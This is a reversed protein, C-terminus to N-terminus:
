AGAAVRAPCQAYSHLGGCGPGCCKHIGRNCEAGVVANACNGLNFGYCVRKNDIMPSCGALAAPMKGKGKGKGKNGDFPVPPFSWAVAKAKAKAVAATRKARKGQGPIGPVGPNPPGESPRKAVASSASSGQLPLLLFTVKADTMLAKMAQEVIRNGAADIGVGERCEESLLIFLERDAALIQELSVHLYKPPPVRAMASYLSNVWREHTDFGILNAQDLALSRRLFAQRIKYDSSLDASPGVEREVLRIAGNVDKGVGTDIKIGQLEHVRSTCKDLTIHRIMADEVMQQALDLLAHSPENDQTIQISVLRRVQDKHRAAREPAPMKRPASEDTREVRAKTDSLVLTHSEFQLRRFRAMSATGPEVGLIDILATKLAAGDNIAVSHPVLFAFAAFTDLSQATLASLEAQSVGVALARARFAAVSEVIAM